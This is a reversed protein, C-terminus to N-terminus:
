NQVLNTKTILIPCIKAEKENDTLPICHTHKTCYLDGVDFEETGQFSTSRASIRSRFINSDEICEFERGLYDYVIDGEKLTSFVHIPICTWYELFYEVSVFHHKKVYQEYDYLLSTLYNPGATRVDLVSMDKWYRLVEM